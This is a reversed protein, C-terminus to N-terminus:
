GLRDCVVGLGMVRAGYRMAGPLCVAADRATPAGGAGLCAVGGTYQHWVYVALYVGTDCVEACTDYVALYWECGCGGDQRSVETPLPCGQTLLCLM